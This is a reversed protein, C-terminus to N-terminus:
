RETVREGAREPATPEPADVVGGIAYARTVWAAPAPPLVALLDALEAEDLDPDVTM